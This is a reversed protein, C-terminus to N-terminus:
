KSEAPLTDPPEAVNPSAGSMSRDILPLLPLDRRFNYIISLIPPAFLFKSVMIGKHSYILYVLSCIITASVNYLAVPEAFVTM